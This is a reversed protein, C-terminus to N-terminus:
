NCQGTYEQAYNIRLSNMNNMDSGWHACGTLLAIFLLLFSVNFQAAFLKFRDIHNALKFILQLQSKEKDYEFM